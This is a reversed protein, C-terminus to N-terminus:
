FLVGFEPPFKPAAIGIRSSAGSNMVRMKNVKRANSARASDTLRGYEQRVRDAKNFSDMADLTMAWAWYILPNECEIPLDTTDTNASLATPQAYYRDRMNYTGAPIPYLRYTDGQIAFHTPNSTTTGDPDAESFRRAAFETLVLNNSEDTLSINRGFNSAVPYTIASITVSEGAAEVTLSDATQLTLTGAAATEITYIGDNSTSGSVLVEMGASFDGMGSASDTITDPDSDAFAITSAAYTVTKFMRQQYLEVWNDLNYLVNQGENLFNTVILAIGSAEATNVIDKQALRRLVRNTMELFTNKAM